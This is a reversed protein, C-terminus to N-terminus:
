ILLLTKSEEEGILVIVHSENITSFDFLALHTCCKNISIEYSQKNYYVMM